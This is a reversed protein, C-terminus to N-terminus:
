CEHDRLEYIFSVRDERCSLTRHLVAPVAGESWTSFREGAFVVAGDEPAGDGFFAVTEANVWARATRDFVELGGDLSGQKVTLWGPDLHESMAVRQEAPPLQAKPGAAKPYLFVDCVSPDGREGVQRCWEVRAAPDARELLDLCLASLVDVGEEFAARFDGKDEGPWPCLESAGAIFHFQERGAFGPTSVYGLGHLALSSHRPHRPPGRFAAESRQPAALFAGGLRRARDLSARQAPTLRLAAFGRLRLQCLAEHGPDWAVTAPGKLHALDNAPSQGM